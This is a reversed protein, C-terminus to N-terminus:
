MHMTIDQMLIEGNKDKQPSEGVDVTLSTFDIRFPPRVQSNKKKDTM